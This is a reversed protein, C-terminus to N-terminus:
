QLFDVKLLHLGLLNIVLLLVELAEPAVAVVMALAVVATAVM